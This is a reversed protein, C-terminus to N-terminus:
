WSILISALRMKKKTRTHTNASPGSKRIGKAVELADDPTINVAHLKSKM